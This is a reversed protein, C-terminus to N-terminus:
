APKQFADVEGKWFYHDPHQMQEVIKTVSDYSHFFRNQFLKGDRHEPNQWTKNEDIVYDIYWISTKPDRTPFTKRNKFPKKRPFDKIDEEFIRKKQEHDANDLTWKFFNIEGNEIYNVLAPSEPAFPFQDEM